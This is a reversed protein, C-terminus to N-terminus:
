MVECTSDNYTYTKSAVGGEYDDVLAFEMDAPDACDDASLPHPGYDNVAPPLSNDAAQVPMVYYPTHPGIEAAPEKGAGSTGGCAASWVPFAAIILVVPASKSLISM